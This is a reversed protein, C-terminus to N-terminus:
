QGDLYNFEIGNGRTLLSAPRTERFTRNPGIQPLRHLSNGCFQWLIRRCLEAHGRHIRSCFDILRDSPWPEYDQWWVGDCRVQDLECPDAAWWLFSFPASSILTPDPQRPVTFTTDVRSSTLGHGLKILFTRKSGIQTAGSTGAPLSTARSPTHRRKAHTRNAEMGSPLWTMCSLLCQRVCSLASPLTISALVGSPFGSRRCNPVSALSSRRSDLQNRSCPTSSATM